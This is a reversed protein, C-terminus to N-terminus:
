AEGMLKLADKAANQEAEKKSHGKGTGIVNSELMVVCSFVPNHAPGEVGTHSYHVHDGPNQQVIEQLRTKYDEHAPAHSPDFNQPRDIFKLVFRKAEEIGGDLFIAAILCEFTNELISMRSRGGNEEEGRGLFIYSNLDIEAAFASLSKECVLSARIKSLDGENDHRFKKYLYDSTIFELVADGLFEMRENNEYYKARAENAFSPHNMANELIDRNRFTYGITEELQSFPKLNKM